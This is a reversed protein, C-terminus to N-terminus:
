WLDVGTGSMLAQLGWEFQVDSAVTAVHPLADRTMTPYSVPDLQGILERWQAAYEAPSQVHSRPVEWVVFGITYALGAFFARVSGEPDLGDSQLESILEELHDFVAPITVRGGALLRTLAPHELAVRRFSRFYETLRALGSGSPVELDVFLAGAMRDLLDAKGDVYSYLTMTGVGLKCVVYLLVLHNAELVGNLDVPGDGLDEGVHAVQLV